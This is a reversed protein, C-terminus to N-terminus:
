NYFLRSIEYCWKLMGLIFHFKTMIILQQKGKLWESNLESYNYVWTGIFTLYTIQTLSAFVQLIMHALLNQHVLFDSLLLNRLSKVSKKTGHSQTDSNGSSKM